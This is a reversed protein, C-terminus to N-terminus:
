HQMPKLQRARFEVAEAKASVPMDQTTHLEFRDLWLFGDIQIEGNPNM